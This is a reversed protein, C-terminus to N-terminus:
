KKNRWETVVEETGTGWVNFSEVKENDDNCSNEFTEEADVQFEFDFESVRGDWNTERVRFVTM